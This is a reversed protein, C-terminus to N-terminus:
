VPVSVRATTGADSGAIDLTGGAARVRQTAAALGVHGEALAEERRGPPIGRGDDTVELELRDRNRRLALAVRQAGSHKAANALLERAVALLLEDHIGIARPQLALEVEFGGQREAQRAVAGLAHEFGGEELTVPHLSLLAERLREIAGGVVEHARTVGVRGPAAELLEQHAALLSQLADDHILQAIRRRAADESEVSQSFLRRCAELEERLREVEANLREVEARLAAADEGPAAIPEPGTM